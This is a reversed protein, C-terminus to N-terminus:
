PQATSSAADREGGDSRPASPPRMILRLVPVQPVDLVPAVLLQDVLARLPAPAMPSRRRQPTLRSRAADLERVDVASLAGVPAPAGFAVAADALLRQAAESVRATNVVLVLGPMPEADVTLVVVLGNSPAVGETLPVLAARAKGLAVAAMASSSDPASSIESFLTRAEGRLLGEALREAPSEDDASSKAAGGSPGCAILLRRSAGASLAALTADSASAVLHWAVPKSRALPLWAAALRPLYAVDVLAVDLDKASEFETSRVFVRSRVRPADPLSQGLHAALESALLVRAETNRLPLAPAFVGLALEDAAAATTTAVIAVALACALARAAVRASAQGGRRAGSM